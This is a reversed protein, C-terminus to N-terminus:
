PDIPFDGSASRMRMWMTMDDESRTTYVSYEVGRISTSLGGPTLIARAFNENLWNTVDYKASPNIANVVLPLTRDFKRASDTEENDLLKASIGVRIQTLDTPKGQWTVIIGSGSDAFIVYPLGLDESAANRGFYFFHLPSVQSSAMTRLADILVGESVGLTEFQVIPPKEPESDNDAIVEEILVDAIAKGAVESKRDQDNLAFHSQALVLLLVLLAGGTTVIVWNAIITSRMMWPDTPHTTHEVPEAAPELPVSDDIPQETANEASADTTPIPPLHFQGECKCKALKGASEVPAKGSRGCHPCTFEIMTRKSGGNQIGSHGKHTTPMQRTAQVRHFDMTCCNVENRSNRNGTGLSTLRATELSFV